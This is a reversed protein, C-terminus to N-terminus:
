SVQVRAESLELRMALEERTFVDPYQTKEFTQELQHLQFTTFTTRSRRSKRPQLGSDDEDEDEHENANDGSTNKKIPPNANSSPYMIDLNRSSPNAVDLKSSAETVEISCVSHRTNAKDQPTDHIDSIVTPISVPFTNSITETNENRYCAEKNFGPTPNGTVAKTMRPALANLPSNELIPQQTVIDPLNGTQM